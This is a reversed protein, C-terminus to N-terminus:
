AGTVLNYTIYVLLGAIAVPCVYRVLFGWVASAPLDHGSRTMEDVAPQVGWVWGAFICILLAGISLSYNGWILDQLDLFSMGLGPLSSLQDVAGVSLASPLALALCAATTGWVAAERGLGQEDVLYSVIVELLSVTSTLAATALLVYFAIAFVNGLPMAEFITPMVVFVLGAGGDEPKVGAAYLAPFIILGALIAIGTDFLAVTAGAFPMSQTRDLYSGYTIMAGMGLSLSFLAQGLANLVVTPTIKSFDPLFLFEVGAMAGPLTLARGALLVLLILFVPMLISTAREIGKQVGGRVVLATLVLFSATLAVAWVPNAVFGGFIAGSQEATVGGAFTGGFAMGVYGLTWGAVVSYFALIAFGTIVGLGGVAVWPNGGEKPGLAAFAGVPNRQSARGMALEAYIVPVGILLVFALYIVLFAAGGSEGTVYPFRWINGLGIASGAGAMVFGILSGFNGRGEDQPINAM